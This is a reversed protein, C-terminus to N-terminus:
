KNNEFKLKLLSLDPAKEPKASDLLSRMTGCVGELSNCCEELSNYNSQSFVRGEKKRDNARLAGLTDIRTLLSKMFTTATEIEDKLRNSGLTASISKGFTEEFDMQLEQMEDGEPILASMVSASLSKFEECASNWLQMKDAKSMSESFCCEYLVRYYMSDMLSSVASMTMNGEAYEGLFESKLREILEFKKMNNEKASIVATSPNAGVIVSSWEYLWAETVDKCNLEKNWVSQKEAYGVSFEKVIGNKLDSFADRGRETELNYQAKVYLGGLQKIENPLRYDNPALEVAELTKAVPLLWDHMFLGVPVREELSKKYCGYIMRENYSDKNGFVSVICELIGEEESLVKVSLPQINKYTLNM